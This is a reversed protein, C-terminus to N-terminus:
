SIQLQDIVLIYYSSDRSPKTTLRISATDWDWLGELEELDWEMGEDSPPFVTPLPTCNTSYLKISIRDAEPTPHTILDETGFPFLVWESPTIPLHIQCHLWIKGSQVTTEAMSRNTYYQESQVFPRFLHHNWYVEQGEATNFKGLAALIEGIVSKTTSSTERSSYVALLDRSRIPDEDRVKLKPDISRIEVAIVRNSMRTSLKGSPVPSLPISTSRFTQIVGAAFNQNNLEKAAKNNFSTM